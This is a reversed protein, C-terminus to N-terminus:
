QQIPVKLKGYVRHPDMKSTEDSSTADDIDSVHLPPITSNGLLRRRRLRSTKTCSKALEASCKMLDVHGPLNNWDDILRHLRDINNHVCLERRLALLPVKPSYWYNIATWKAKGEGRDGVVLNLCAEKSDMSNGIDHSCVGANLCTTNTKLSLDPACFGDTESANAMNYVDSRRSKFHFSNDKKLFEIGKLRLPKTNNTSTSQKSTNEHHRYHSFIGM